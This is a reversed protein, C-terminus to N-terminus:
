GSHFCGHFGGRCRIFAYLLLLLLLVIGLVAVAFTTVYNV